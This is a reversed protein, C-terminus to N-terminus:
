LSPQFYLIMTENKWKGGGGKLHKSLCSKSGTVVWSSEDCRLAALAWKIINLLDTFTYSLSKYLAYPMCNYEEAEIYIATKKSLWPSSTNWKNLKMAQMLSKFSIFCQWWTNPLFFTLAPCGRGTKRNPLVYSVLCFVEDSAGTFNCQWLFVSTLIVTVALFSQNKRHTVTWWFM